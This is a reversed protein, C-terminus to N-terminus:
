TTTFDVLKWIWIYCDNNIQQHVIWFLLIQRECYFHSWSVNVIYAEVVSMRGQKQQEKEVINTVYGSMKLNAAPHIIAFNIIACYYNLYLKLFDNTSQNNVYYYHLSHTCNYLTCLHNEQTLFDVHAFYILIYLLIVYMYVTHTM